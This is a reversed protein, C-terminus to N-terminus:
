VYGGCACVYECVCVCVCEGGHVQNIHLFRVFIAPGVMLM